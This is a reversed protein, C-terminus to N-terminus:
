RAKLAGFGGRMRAIDAARLILIALTNLAAYVRIKKRRQTGHRQPEKTELARIGAQLRHRQGALSACRDLLADAEPQELFHGLEMLTTVGGEERLHRKGYTTLRDLRSLDGSQRMEERCHEFFECWECRDYLHWRAEEAPSSLVRALDFRLFREL